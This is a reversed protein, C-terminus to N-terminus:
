PKATKLRLLERLERQEEQNLKDSRTKEILQDRKQKHLMRGLREMAQKFEAEDAGPTTRNALEKIETEYKSERYLELVAAFTSPKSTRVKDTVDALLDTDPRSLKRIEEAPLAHEVLEPNNILLTAAVRATSYRRKAGPGPKPRKGSARPRPAILHQLDVKAKKALEELLLERFTSPPLGALLPRARESFTARNEPLSLDLEGSLHKFLFDSLPLARKALTDFRERGKNTILSDPDEGAPLMMFGISYGDRFMPLAQRMAAVAAKHGATDGDFCLILKSCLQFLRRIHEKTVATGLTAVVNEVGHQALSVTDTYGEVVLVNKLDRVERLEHIGYLVRHKRFIPTEPSNLYKPQAEGSLARGGFAIVQGRPSRIPFMLRGRFYAYIKHEKRRLLGAESLSKENYETGFLQKLNDFGAPAYGLRFKAATEEAIGRRELYKKAQPTEYLQQTYFTAARDLVATLRKQIKITDASRSGRPVQLGAQEALKEIAERYDMRLYEILFSIATGNAGCGFCHYFQRDPVVTFSPTKEDHFPCCAVYERGKKQLPVHEAIIEVIDTRSLLEETFASREAM